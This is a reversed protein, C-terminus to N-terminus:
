RRARIGFLIAIGVGVSLTTAAAAVGLRDTWAPAFENGLVQKWLGVAKEDGSSAARVATRQSSQLRWFFSEFGDRTWNHAVNQDPLMPDRVFPRNSGSNMVPVCRRYMASLAAAVNGPGSPGLTLEGSRVLEVLLTELWFSKLRRRDLGHTTKWWKLLKILPVLRGGTKANLQSLVKTYGISRTRQWSKLERDPIWLLGDVDGDAVVPVLDLVFEDDPLECRLSRRQAHRETNRLRNRRRAARAAQELDALVVQPPQHAYDDAVIVAIDVDKIARIATHRKYSGVLLTHPDATRLLASAALEDRMLAPLEAAKRLREAPPEIFTLLQTFREDVSPSTM